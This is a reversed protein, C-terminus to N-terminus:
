KQEEKRRCRKAMEAALNVVALRVDENDMNDPLGNIFEQLKRKRGGEDWKDKAIGHELYGNEKEFLLNWVTKQANRISALARITSWQSAFEKSAFSSAYDDVWKKVYKYIDFTIKAQENELRLYKLLTTEEAKTATADTNPKPEQKKEAKKLQYIAKGLNEEKKDAELFAPNYLVKGFGENQYSGVYQPSLTPMYGKCKVVFISGKEIGCRDTDFCQRTANWPAYQFTRVQSKKWDIEGNEIGLDKATPRFTPLGNADLFILRGDAYVYIEDKSPCKTADIAQFGYPQIKVLGYQASRSRGIHKTGVLAKGITEALAEDEVEVEFYLTLGKRLSEYGYMKGERSTRKEKDYASKIAFSTEAEVELAPNQSFDYFGTRCQKLQLERLEKQAADDKPHIAASIYYEEKNLKPHMMMAPVRLTRVEGNAPHADGFRVKGSHFITLNQENNDKYIERAVVGLFCGGPIFDLTTNAGETAAKQNLIIDTQLEVKYKLVKM